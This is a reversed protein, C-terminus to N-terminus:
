QGEQLEHFHDCIYITQNWNQSYWTLSADFSSLAHVMIQKFKLSFWVKLDWLVLLALNQNGHSLNKTSTVTFKNQLCCKNYKWRNELTPWDLTDLVYVQQHVRLFVWYSDVLEKTYNSCYALSDQITNYQITNYVQKYIKFLRPSWTVWCFSILPM